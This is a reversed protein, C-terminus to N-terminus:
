AAKIVPKQYLDPLYILKGQTLRELQLARKEPILTKWRCIAVHTLGLVNATNKVGGFHHIVDIKQM